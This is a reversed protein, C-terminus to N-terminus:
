RTPDSEEAGLCELGRDLICAKGYFIGYDKEDSQAVTMPRIGAPIFEDM